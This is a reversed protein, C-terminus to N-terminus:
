PAHTAESAERMPRAIQMLLKSLEKSHRHPDHPNIAV